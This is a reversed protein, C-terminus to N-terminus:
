RELRIRLFPSSTESPSGDVKENYIAEAKAQMRHTVSYLTGTEIYEVLKKAAKVRKEADWDVPWPIRWELDIIM